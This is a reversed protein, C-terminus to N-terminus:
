IFNRQMIVEAYNKLSLEEPGTHKMVTLECQRALKFPCQSCYMDFHILLHAASSFLPTLLGNHEHVQRLAVYEEPTLGTFVNKSAILLNQAVERYTTHAMPFIQSIVEHGPLNDEITPRNVIKRTFYGYRPDGPHEHWQGILKTTHEERTQRYLHYLDSYHM